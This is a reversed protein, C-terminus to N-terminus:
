ALLWLYAGIGIEELRSLLVRLARVSHSSVSVSDCFVPLRLAPLDSDSAFSQEGCRARRRHGRDHTTGGVDGSHRDVSRALEIAAEKGLVAGEALATAAMLPVMGVGIAAGPSVALVYVPLAAALGAVAGATAGELVSRARAQRAGVAGIAVLLAIVGIPTIASLLGLLPHIQDVTRGAAWQILLAVLQYWVLVAELTGLGLGWRAASGLQLM